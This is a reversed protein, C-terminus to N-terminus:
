IENGWKKQFEALAWGHMHRVSGYDRHMEEAIQTLSKYRVYKEYLLDIHEARDLAEIQAVIKQRLLILKTKDELIEESLDVAKDVLREARSTVDSTQVKDRSYDMSNLSVALTMLNEAELEKQRIIVDLRRIQSLYVKATM